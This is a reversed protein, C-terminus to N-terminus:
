NTLMRRLYQPGSPLVQKPHSIEEQTRFVVSENTHGHDKRTKYSAMACIRTDNKTQHDCLVKLTKCIFFIKKM